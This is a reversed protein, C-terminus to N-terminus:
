VQNGERKVKLYRISRDLIWREMDKRTSAYYIHLGYRVEFSALAQRCVEVPVKTFIQPSLVQKETGEIVLAKFELERMAILKKITKEREAAVYGYLEGVKKREFCIMNEFGKISYDGHHLTDRVTLLGKPPKTFLPTQERTDIIMVMNDPFTYPKLKFNKPTSSSKRSTYKM